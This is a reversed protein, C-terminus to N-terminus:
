ETGSGPDSFGSQTDSEEEADESAGKKPRLHTAFQTSYSNKPFKLFDVGEGKNHLWVRERFHCPLLAFPMLRM